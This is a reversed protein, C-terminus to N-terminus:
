LHALVATSFLASESETFTIFPTQALKHLDPAMDEQGVKEESLQAGPVCQKVTIGSKIPTDNYPAILSPSM